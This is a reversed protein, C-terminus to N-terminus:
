LAPSIRRGHASMGRDGRTKGTDSILLGLDEPLEERAFEVLSGPEAHRLFLFYSEPPLGELPLEGAAVRTECFRAAIMFITQIENKTPERRLFIELTIPQKIGDILDLVAKLLSQARQAAESQDPQTVEVYV